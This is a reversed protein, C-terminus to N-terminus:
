RGRKGAKGGVWVGGGGGVGVCGSVCLIAWTKMTEFKYVIKFTYLWDVKM